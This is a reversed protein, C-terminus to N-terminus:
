RARAGRRHKGYPPGPPVSPMNMRYLLLEVRRRETMAAAPDGTRDAGPGEGPFASVSGVAAGSVLVPPALMAAAEPALTPALTSWAGCHVTFATDGTSEAVAQPAPRQLWPASDSDAM